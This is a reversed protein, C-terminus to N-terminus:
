KIEYKFRVMAAYEDDTMNDIKEILEAVRDPSVSENDQLNKVVPVAYLVEYSHVLAEKLLWDKAYPTNSQLVRATFADRTWTVYPPVLLVDQAFAVKNGPLTVM